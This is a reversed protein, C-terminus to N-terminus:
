GKVSGAMASVFYKQCICYIVIIPISTMIIGAFLTTYETSYEKTFSLLLTMPITYLKEDRLTMLAGLANNWSSTFRLIGVTALVPKIVPVIVRFCIQMDTAGDMMAAEELEKPIGRLFGSVLFVGQTIIIAGCIIEGILNNYLGLSRRLMLSTVSGVSPIFMPCLVFMYLAVGIKTDRIRNLCYSVFIVNVLSLGVSTFTIIVSNKIANLLNAKEWAIVFNDFNFNIPLGIPNLVREPETKFATMIVFYLPITLILAYVIVMLKGLLSLIKLDSKKRKM